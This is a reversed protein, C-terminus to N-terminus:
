RGAPLADAVRHAEDAISAIFVAYTDVSSNSARHIEQALAEPPINYRRLNADSVIFVFKGGSPADLASAESVATRTAEITHDGPMCFQTHAVM